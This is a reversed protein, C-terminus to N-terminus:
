SDRTGYLRLIEKAEDESECSVRLYLLNPDLEQVAKGAERAEVEIAVFKGAEQIRRLLPIWETPAVAGAGPRWEIGAMGDLTLLSDLHRTAGPGDLHYMSYDLWDVWSAISPLVLDDYMQKSIMISFDCELMLMREPAWIGMWNMMGEQDSSSYIVEEAEVYLEKIVEDIYECVEGIKGPRDVLDVCLEGSGRIMMLYDMSPCFSSLGVIYRGQAARGYAALVNKSHRWWKNDPDFLPEPVDDWDKIWPVVRFTESHCQIEEALVANLLLTHITPIADGGYYTSKLQREMNSLLYDTDTWSRVTNELESRDVLKSRTWSWAPDTMFDEAGELNEAVRPPIVEQKPATVSMVPGDTLERNWLAAYRRKTLEWNSNYM